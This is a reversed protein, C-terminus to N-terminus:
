NIVVSTIAVTIGITKTKLNKEKYNEIQPELTKIVAYNLQLKM